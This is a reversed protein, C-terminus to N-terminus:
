RTAGQAPQSSPGLAKSGKAQQLLAAEDRPLPVFREGWPTGTQLECNTVCQAPRGDASASWVGAVGGARAGIFVMSGDRQPTLTGADALGTAVIRDRGDIGLLHVEAVLGYKAVYALAGTPGQVPPAGAEQALVRQAGDPTVLLLRKQRDVLAVGDRFRAYATHEGEIARQSGDELEFALTMRPAGDGGVPVDSEKTLVRIARVRNAEVAAGGIMAPSAQPAQACGGLALAGVALAGVGVRRAMTWSRASRTM